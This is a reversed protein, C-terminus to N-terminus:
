QITLETTVTQWQNQILKMERITIMNNSIKVIKGSNKGIYNGITARALGGPTMLLAWVKQKYDVIGVFKINALPYQELTQRARKSDPRIKQEAAYETFPDRLSKADIKHSTPAQQEASVAKKIVIPKPAPKAPRSEKCASVSLIILLALLINKM